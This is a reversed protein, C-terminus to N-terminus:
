QCCTFGCAENGVGSWCTRGDSATASTLVIGACTMAKSVIACIAASSVTSRADSSNRMDCFPLRTCLAFLRPASKVGCCGVSM